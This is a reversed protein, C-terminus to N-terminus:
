EIDGWFTWEVGNYFCVLNKDPDYVMMGATPSKVNNVPDVVKPLILAKNEAELVLIGKATSTDGIVVGQENNQEDSQLLAPAAGSKGSMDVWETGDYFKVRATATDFVFTGASTNIMNNANIVQPLIIGKTTGEPFDLLGSGDVSQKEIGIQAQAFIGLFLSAFIYTKFSSMILQM